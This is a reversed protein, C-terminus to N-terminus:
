RICDDQATPRCIRVTANCNFDGGKFLGLTRCFPAGAPCDADVKCELYTAGDGVEHCQAAGADPLPLDCRLDQYVFTKQATGGCSAALLLLLGSKARRRLKM